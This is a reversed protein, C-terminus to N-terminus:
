GRRRRALGALGALGVLLASSPEPVAQLALSNTQYNPDGFLNTTDVTATGGLSGALLTGDNLFLTDSEPPAPAPPDGDITQTHQFLGYESAANLDTDNGFFTFLTKGIMTPTQAYPDGGFYFGDTGFGVFTDSTLPVFDAVLQSFSSSAVQTNDLSDFYGVAAIGSGQAIPAGIETTIVLDSGDGGGIINDANITAGHAMQSAAVLTAAFLINKKM